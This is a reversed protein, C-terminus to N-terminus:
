PKVHLQARLEAPNQFKRCDNCGKPQRKNHIKPVQARGVTRAYRVHGVELFHRSVEIHSGFMRLDVYKQVRLEIKVINKTSTTYFFKKKWVVNSFWAKKCTIKYLFYKHLYANGKQNYINKLINKHTLQLSFDSFFDTLGEDLGPRADLHSLRISFHPFCLM